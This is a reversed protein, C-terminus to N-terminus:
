KLFMKPKRRFLRDAAEWDDPRGVDLWRGRFRYIYPNYELKILKDVLQPFDFRKTPIHKIIERRFAYIGMSVSYGLVPKELYEEIKNKTAEIVGFDIQVSRKFVAVTMLSDNKIHAKAFDDFPLNTLLDGNLVLFDSDLNKIRKLPAATGLPKKEESYSIKVGLQRGDGLIMRILEAQYGVALIIDKIGAKALQRILIEVIPLEGVPWLPKPLVRTYPRLRRGEGGALIVAQTIKKRKKRKARTKKM